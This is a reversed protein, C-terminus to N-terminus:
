PGVVDVIFIEFGNATVAEDTGPPTFREGVQIIRVEADAGQFSTGEFARAFSEVLMTASVEYLAGVMVHVRMVQSLARIEATQQLQSMLANALTSLDM